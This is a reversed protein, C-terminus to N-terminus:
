YRGSFPPPTWYTYSQWQLPVNTLYNEYLGTKLWSRDEYPDIPLENVRAMIQDIPRWIASSVTFYLYASIELFIMILLFTSLNIWVLYFIYRLRSSHNAVQNESPTVPPM